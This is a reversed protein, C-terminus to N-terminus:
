RPAAGTPWSSRRRSQRLPPWGAAWRWRPSVWCRWGRSFSDAGWIAGRWAHRASSLATRFSPRATWPTGGKSGTSAGSRDSQGTTNTRNRTRLSQIREAPLRRARTGLARRAARVVRSAASPRLIRPHAGCLLSVGDQDVVRALLTDRRATTRSASRERVVREAGTLLDRLTLTAGPDVDLVEWVSLGAARQAALWARERTSLRAGRAELFWEVLTRGDFRHQYVLAPIVFHINPLGPAFGELQQAAADLLAGFRGDAFRLMATVLREDLAHLARAREAPDPPRAEDLRLHCKKYKRGSGCPCPDNRGVPVLVASPAAHTAGARPHPLRLRVVIEDGAPGTTIEERAAAVPDCAFAARHRRTFSALAEACAAALRVDREGLPRAVADPDPRFVVPYARPGAVPWGHAEIERRMGPPLERRRAFDLSLTYGRLDPPRTPTTGDPPASAVFAEFAELSEFLVFGFHEGLGGIISLCAGEVGLAPVDVGLVHADDAVKWPAERWLAAAARFLREVVTAPVRGSELWTVGEGAGRAGFSRALDEALFQLEPTPAVTVPIAAGIRGRIATALADDGVRLREPRSAEPALPRELAQALTAAVDDPSLPPAGLHTGVVLGSPLELWLVLDPRQPEDELVYAPVSICGGVWETTQGERM